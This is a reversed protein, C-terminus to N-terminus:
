VQSLKTSFLFEDHCRLVDANQHDVIGRHYPRQNGIAHRWARILTDAHPLRRCANSSSSEARGSTILQVDLHGVHIPQRCEIRDQEVGWVTIMTLESVLNPRLDGEIGRRPRHNDPSVRSRRLVLAARWSSSGRFTRMAAPQSTRRITSIRPAFAASRRALRLECSRSLRRLTPAPPGNLELWGGDWRSQRFHTASPM